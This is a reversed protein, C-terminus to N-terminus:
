KKSVSVVPAPALSVGLIVVKRKDPLTISEVVKTSDIAFEYGYLVWGYGAGKGNHKKAGKPDVIHAM